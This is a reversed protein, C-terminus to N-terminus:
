PVEQRESLMWKPICGHQYLLSLSRVTGASHADGMLCGLKDTQGPSGCVECQLRFLDMHKPIAGETRSIFVYRPQEETPSAVGCPTRQGAGQWLAPQAEPPAPIVLSALLQTVQAVLTKMSVQSNVEM